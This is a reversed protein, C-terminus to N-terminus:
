LDSKSIILGIHFVCQIKVYRYKYALSGNQLRLVKISAGDNNMFMKRLFNSKILLLWSKQLLVCIFLSWFQM